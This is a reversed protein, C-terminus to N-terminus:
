VVPVDKVSHREETMQQTLNLSGDRKRVATVFNHSSNWCNRCLIVCSRLSNCLGDGHSQM